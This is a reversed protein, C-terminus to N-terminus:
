RSHSVKAQVTRMANWSVGGRTEAACRGMADCRWGEGPQRPYRPHGRPRVRCGDGAAAPDSLRWGARQRRRCIAVSNRWSLWAPHGADSRRQLMAAASVGTFRQTVFRAESHLFTLKRRRIAGIGGLAVGLGTIVVGLGFLVPSAQQKGAAALGAGVLLLLMEPLSKQMFANSM